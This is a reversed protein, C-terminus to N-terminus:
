TGPAPRCRSPRWTSPWRGCRSDPGRAERWALEMAVGSLDALTVDLGRRALWLAHRGTGGAVDLARGGQPMLDALAVLSGSPQRLGPKHARYRADWRRRDAEAM